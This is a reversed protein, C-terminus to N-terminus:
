GVSSFSSSGGGCDSGGISACAVSGVTEAACAISGATEATYAVSGESSFSAENMNSFDPTGFLDKGGFADFGGDNSELLSTEGEAYALSGATEADNNNSLLGTSSNPTNSSLVFNFTM